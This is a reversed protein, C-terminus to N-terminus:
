EGFQFGGGAEDEGNDGDGDKSADGAEEAAEAAAAPEAKAEEKASAKKDADASAKKAAKDGSPTKKGATETTKQDERAEALEQKREAERRERVEGAHDTSPFVDAASVMGEDVARLQVLIKSIDGVLWEKRKRGVVAELQIVEINHRACVNDIFTNAADRNNEVWGALNKKAEGMMFDSYASLANIVVNRIAKSCGIQYAMDRQRDADRMNANTQKRQQFSRAMMSGRERDVFLAIFEWHEGTDKIDIVGTFNNGFVRVLDNALKITPGEVTDTTGKARNKVPWSYYYRNANAAALARLEQLIRNQDRFAVIPTSLAMGLGALAMQQGGGATAPLNGRSEVSMESLAQFDGSDTMPDALRPTQTNM